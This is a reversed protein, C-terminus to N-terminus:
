AQQWFRLDTGVEFGIHEEEFMPLQVLMELADTPRLIIADLQWPLLQLDGQPTQLGAAEAELSPQVNKGVGPLLVTAKKGDPESNTAFRDLYRLWDNISLAFPHPMQASRKGKRQKPTAATDEGWLAFQRIDPLWSGHLVHM